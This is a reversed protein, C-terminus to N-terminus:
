LDGTLPVGAKDLGEKLQRSSDAPLKDILVQIQQQVVTFLDKSKEYSFLKKEDEIVEDNLMPGRGFMLWIPNVAPYGTLLKQLVEFSPKNKRGGIIGALVGSQIDAGRGFAAKNGKCFSDVMQNIRDHINGIEDVNLM